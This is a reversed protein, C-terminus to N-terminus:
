AAMNVATDVVLRGVDHQVGDEDPLRIAQKGNVWALSIETNNKHDTVEENLVFTSKVHENSGHAFGLAQAGLVVSRHITTAVQKSETTAAADNKSVKVTDGANWGVVHDMQRVMINGKCLFEGSFLPHSFGKMRQTANAVLQNFDKTTASAQLDAWQRPTVLQLYFPDHGAKAMAPLVIKRLPNRMERLRLDTNDLTELSFRDTSDLEDISTNNGAYFHRSYTPALVPNVMIEAYEPDSELPVIDDFPSLTGRAGMLHYLTTFENLDNYYEELLKKIIAKTNHNTLSKLVQGADHIMKRGQNVMIKATGMSLRSGRGQLTNDGMVPKGKIRHVVEFSVENGKTTKLDNIKVIPHGADSQFKGLGSTGKPGMEGSLLNTLIRQKSAMAFLLANIVKMKAGSPLVGVYNSM